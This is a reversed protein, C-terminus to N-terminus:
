DLHPNLIPDNRETLRDKIKYYVDALRDTFFVIIIIAAITGALNLEEVFLFESWGIIIWHIIYIITVAKSWFILRNKVVDPLIVSVKYWIALWIIIFSIFLINSIISHHFYHLVDGTVIGLDYNPNIVLFIAAPISFLISLIVAKIYFINKNEIRILIWGFFSGMLPYVMWSFFPHFVYGDKGFVTSLLTDLLSIGTDPKSVFPTLISIIFAIMPYYCESIRYKKLIATFMMAIGAFHFIDGQVLYYYWPVEASNITYLSMNGGIFFPLFGRSFNLIYGGLFITVGRKFLTSPKQNRSYVFGIGMLFMFVPAAPITGFFDIVKGLITKSTTENSLDSTIHVLIMFFVALGRTIDVEVQRKTNTPHLTSINDLYKM